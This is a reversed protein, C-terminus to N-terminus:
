NHALRSLLVATNGPAVMRRFGAERPSGIGGPDTASAQRVKVDEAAGFPAAGFPLSELWSRLRATPERNVPGADRFGGRSPSPPHPPFPPPPPPRPAGGCYRM